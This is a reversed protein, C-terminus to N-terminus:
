VRTSTRTAQRCEHAPLLSELHKCKVIYLKCQVFSGFRDFSSFITSVVKSVLHYLSSLNAVGM